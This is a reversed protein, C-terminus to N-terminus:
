QAPTHGSSGCRFCPKIPKHPQKPQFKKPKQNSVKYVEQRFHTSGSVMHVGQLALEM